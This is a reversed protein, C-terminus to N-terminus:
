DTGPGGSLMVVPARDDASPAGFVIVPLEIRRGNPVSRLEPVSLYFREMPLRDSQDIPFADSPQVVGISHPESALSPGGLGLILLAPLIAVIAFLALFITKKMPNDLCTSLHDAIWIWRWLQLEALNSVKATVM